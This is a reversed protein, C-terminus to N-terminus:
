IVTGRLELEIVPRKASDTRIKLTRNLPGKAIGPNLTVRVLYERGDTIPEIKTQIGEGADISVIKVPETSFTRVNFVRSMPEKLDISGLEASPPTVAIAPRVFGSIPIPVVKQKPHTTHIRVHEALAGVTADNSLNMEIRWQKGTADPVREGDKAERFTTTLFPYPSDIKVVEFSSGDPAWITQAISGTKEEGQVTIYRAYGPKAAIYPQVNTRITLEIHPNDVDNTIATVGKSIPGAFTETDIVVNVKGTQGPAITKDFEVVTCGCAAVVETIELTATGENRIQFVHSVKEGKAAVGVDKIAEAVVAKPKAAQAQLSAAFSIACLALIASRKLRNM